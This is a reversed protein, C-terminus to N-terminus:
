FLKQLMNGFNRKLQEETSGNSGGEAGDQPQKQSQEQPQVFRQLKEGLKQQLKRGLEQKLVEDLDVRIRPKELQGAVEVPFSKGALRGYIAQQETTLEEAVAAILRYELQQSALDVWGGGTLTVAGAHINLDDSQLRGQQVVVSASLDSFRTENPGSEQPVPKGEILAQAQRIVRQLNVGEIAGNGVQLRADGDLTRLLAEPALGSAQLKGDLSVTGRVADVGFALRLLAGLDSGSLSEDLSFTPEEGRLDAQMLGHYGGGYLAATLPGVTILGDRAEVVTEINTVEAAAYHLRALTIRGELDLARLPELPLQVVGVASGALPDAVVGQQAPPLYRELQLQDGHLEFRVRQGKEMRQLTASGRWQAGDVVARFPELRLEQQLLPLLAVELQVGNIEVAQPTVGQLVVGDMEVTIQPLLSLAVPQRIELAIGQQQAAATIQQRLAAEDFLFIKWGALAAVLGVVVLVFGKLIRVM